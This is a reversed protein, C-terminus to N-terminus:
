CYKPYVVDRDHRPISGVLVPIHCLHPQRIKLCHTQYEEHAPLFECSPRKRTTSCLVNEGVDDSDDDAPHARAGKKLKEVQACFDWLSVDKLQPGRMTYDIVQSPRATMKNEDDITVAIEDHDLEPNQAGQSETDTIPEHEDVDDPEAIDNKSAQSSQINCSGDGTDKMYCEPSSNQADVYVEFTTWYLRNFTHSTFHDEWDMLYSAVQQGCLEQQSIMAHACKQLMRKARLTLEDDVPNYEGLKRVALELAAYAMHAKLQTKSIYDTIYYLIAKASAGSGIFKIDMNCRIASLITENFNNVMGDLCKLNIEGTEPDVVSDATFNGSDLGFRCEQVETAKCFKFCMERHSHCQCREALHHFDKQYEVPTPSMGMGKNVGRISCPDYLSSPVTVLPVPDDPVCTSIASDLYKLLSEKFNNDTLVHEKIEDPNLGGEIWLLMHCHLM